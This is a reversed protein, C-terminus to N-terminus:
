EDGELVALFEKWPLCYLRMNISVKSCFYEKHTLDEERMKKSAYIKHVEGSALDKSFYDWDCRWLVVFRKTVPKEADCLDIQLLPTLGLKMAERDLKDWTLYSFTYFDKSTTKCEVLFDSSRVDGKDDLAGSAIVIRGDLEYAVKREQKTSAYKTTGKKAM